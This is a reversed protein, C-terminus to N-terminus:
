GGAPVVVKGTSLDKYTGLAGPNRFVMTGDEEVTGVQQWVKVLSSYIGPEGTLIFAPANTMNYKALIAKGQSSSVDLYTKNAPVVGYNALVLLNYTVDSCTTCSSDNLFTIGVIGRTRNQSLDYYLPTKREYVYSEGSIRASVQSLIERYESAESSLVVAPLSRISHSSIAEAGEASTSNVAKSSAFYMGSYALNSLMAEPSQCAQCSPEGIAVAKVLGKVSSSGTDFYPAYPTELVLYNGVRRFGLSSLLKSLSTTKNTEGSIIVAPLRSVQPFGSAQASGLYVQSTKTFNVREDRISDVYEGIEACESCGSSLLTTMELKAPRTEEVLAAIRGDLVSASYVLLTTNVIAFLALLALFAFIINKLHKNGAM